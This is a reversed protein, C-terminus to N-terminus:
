KLKNNFSVQKGFSKSSNDRLLMLIMRISKYKIRFIMQITEEVM